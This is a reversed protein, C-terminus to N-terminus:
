VECYSLESKEAREHQLVASPIISSQGLSDNVGEVLIDHESEDEEVEM